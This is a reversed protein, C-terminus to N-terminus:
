KLSQLKVMKQYLKCRAILEQDTGQDEIQGKNIVVVKHSNRVTALRHAIILITCIGELKLLTTQILAESEADLASTAEDLILLKPKRLLARAIAVRQKQGASLNAGKAGVLTHEKNPLNAIFSAVGAREMADFIEEDRAELNGYRVNNYVTDSFLVPEQPVLAIHQRLLEDSLLSGEEKGYYIKGEFDKYMKFILSVITSKGAGSPGVLATRQLPEIDLTLNKLVNVSPRLPYSFTVEKFYVDGKWHRLIDGDEKTALKKEKKEILAFVRESAGSAEVISSYASTLFAFSIAVIAGYVCFATLDGKTIQNIEMALVGQYLIFVIGVNMLFSVFSSFFAAVKSRAIGAKLVEMVREKFDEIKKRELLLIKITKILSL